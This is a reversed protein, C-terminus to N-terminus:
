HLQVLHGMQKLMLKEQLKILSMINRKNYYLFFFSGMLYSKKTKLKNGYKLRNWVEMSKNDMYGEPNPKNLREKWTEFYSIDQEPQREFRLIFFKRILEDNDNM